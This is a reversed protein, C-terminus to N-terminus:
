VLKLGQIKSFDKDKTVLIADNIIATAAIIADPFKFKYKIKM